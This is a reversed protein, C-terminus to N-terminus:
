KINYKECLTQWYGNGYERGCKAKLYEYCLDRIVEDPTESLDFIREYEYRGRLTGDSYLHLESKAQTNLDIYYNDHTSHYHLSVDIGDLTLQKLLFLLKEM